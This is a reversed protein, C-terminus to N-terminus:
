VSKREIKIQRITLNLGTLGAFLAPPVSFLFFKWQGTILSVILFLGPIVILACLSVILAVKTNQM